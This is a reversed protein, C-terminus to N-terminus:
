YRYEEVDMTVCLELSECIRIGVEISWEEKAILDEVQDTTMGLKHALTYIDFEHHNVHDYDDHIKKLAMDRLKKKFTLEKETPNLIIM